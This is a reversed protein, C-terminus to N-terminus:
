AIVTQLSLKAYVTEESSIIAQFKIEKGERSVKSLKVTVPQGEPALVSLFKVNSAATLRLKEGLLDGALEVAMQIQCVGPTVPMGPFHAAYIPCSPLLSLSYTAQSDAIEQGTIIYLYENLNM